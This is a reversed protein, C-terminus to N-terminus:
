GRLVVVVLCSCMMLTLVCMTVVPLHEVDHDLVKNIIKKM